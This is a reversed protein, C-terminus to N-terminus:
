SFYLQGIAGRFTLATRPFAKPFRHTKSESSTWYNTELLDGSEYHSHKQVHEDDRHAPATHRRAGKFTIKHPSLRNRRLAKVTASGALLSDLSPLGHCMPALLAVAPWVSAKRVSCGWRAQHGQQHLSGQEAQSSAIGSGWLKVLRICVFAAM